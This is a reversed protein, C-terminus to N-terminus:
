HTSGCGLQADSARRRALEEDSPVLNSLSEEALLVASPLCMSANRFDSYLASVRGVIQGNTAGPDALLRKTVDNTNVSLVFPNADTDTDGWIVKMREPPLSRVLLHTDYAGQAYGDRFGGVYFARQSEDMDKWRPGLTQQGFLWGTGFLLICIAMAPATKM